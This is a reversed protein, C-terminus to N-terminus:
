TCSGWDLGFGGSLVGGNFRACKGKVPLVVPGAYYRHDRRDTRSLGGRVELTAWVQSATGVNASKITVVCGNGSSASVLLYATGGNLPTSGQRTFGPGCVKEPSFPNTGAAPPGAPGTAAPSTPRATPAVTPRATWSPTAVPKAPQSPKFTPAPRSPTAPRSPRAPQSPRASQSPRPAPRTFTPRVPAPRTVTPTAATPRAGPPVTPPLTPAPTPTGQGTGPAPAPTPAPPGSQGPTPTPTPVPTPPGTPPGEPEVPVTPTPTTQVAATPSAEATPTAQGTAPGTPEAPVTPVAPATPPAVMPGTPVAVPPDTYSGITPVPPVTPADSPLQLPGVEAAGPEPTTGWPVTVKGVPADGTNRGPDSAPQPEQRSGDALGLAVEPVAGDASARELEDLATYRGAAWLGLGSLLVIAGICAALAMSLGGTRTRAAQPPAEAPVGPVDPAAPVDPTASASQPLQPAGWVSTAPGAPRQAATDPTATGAPLDEGHATGTLDAGVQRGSGPAAPTGIGPVTGAGSGNGTGPEMHAATGATGATTGAGADAGPGPVTGVTGVTGAFPGPSPHGATDDATVPAPAVPAGAEREGLLRQMATGTDPREGPREALCSALVPRLEAPLGSLDAEGHEPRGGFPPRGTAAHVVTAAWAFLDAPRDAEAAASPATAPATATAGLPDTRPREPALYDPEWGGTAPVLGIDFVRPGDPGLIVTDPTLARHALGSLHLATLATLTGTAFRELAEGTLPGNEAVAQRLTPGEVHERVVYPSDDFWGVELLRAAHAGSARKAANLATTIRERAQSDADPRPALLRIVRVTEDDLLHGLYVTHDPDPDLRGVLVHM